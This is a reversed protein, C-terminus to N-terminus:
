ECLLLTLLIEASTEGLPINECNKETKRYCDTQSLPHSSRVFRRKTIIGVYARVCVCVCM